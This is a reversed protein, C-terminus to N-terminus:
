AAGADAARVARPDNPDLTVIEPGLVSPDIAPGGRVACRWHAYARTPTVKALTVAAGAPGGVDARRM